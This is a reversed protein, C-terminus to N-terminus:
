TVRKVANHRQEALAPSPIFARWPKTERPPMSRTDPDRPTGARGGLDLRDNVLEGANKGVDGRIHLPLRCRIGGADMRIKRHPQGGGIARCRAMREGADQLPQPRLQVLREGGRGFRCCGFAPTTM